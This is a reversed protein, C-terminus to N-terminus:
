AGGSRMSGHRRQSMLQLSASLGGHRDLPTLPISASIRAIRKGSSNRPTWKRPNPSSAMLFCFRASRNANSTELMRGRRCKFMGLEVTVDTRRMPLFLAAVTLRVDRGDRVKCRIAIGSNLAHSGLHLPASHGHDREGRMANRSGVTLLIGAALARNASAVPDM